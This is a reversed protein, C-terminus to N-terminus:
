PTIEFVTGGGFKGGGNTTGYLNGAGDLILAGAFPGKGDAGNGFSHLVTEAWSGNGAPTLKFITGGGYVGGFLTTGYLNGAGDAVLSAFPNKGDTGKGFVHLIKESWTGDGNPSLEYVTGFVAGGGITTGYLNGASDFILGGYPQYGDGVHKQFNHLIKETWTGDGVPSLEFVIGGPHAGGYQATGYINGSRDFILNSAPAYGDAPPGTFSHPMSETWSGDGAPTLEFVLGDAHSGGSHGAGFLNGAADFTLGAFPYGGTQTGDIRGGFNCLVKWAWVGNTQPSLEFATGIDYAGTEYTTGYLNGSTDFIMSGRPFEGSDRSFNFRTHAVWGGVKAPSLEFMTGGAVSGGAATTGYLNGSGDFVLGGNPSYGGNNAANFNHLIKEGAVARAEMMIMVGLITLLATLTASRKQARMAFAEQAYDQRVPQTLGWLFLM